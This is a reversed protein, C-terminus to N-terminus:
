VYHRVYKFKYKAQTPLLRYKGHHVAIKPTLNADGKENEICCLTRCFTRLFSRLVSRTNITEKMGCEVNTLTKM